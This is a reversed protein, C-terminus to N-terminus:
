ISPKCFAKIFARKCGQGSGSVQKVAFCSFSFQTMKLILVAGYVQPDFNIRLGSLPCNM